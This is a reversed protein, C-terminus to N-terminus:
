RRMQAADVASQMNDKRVPVLNSKHTTVIGAIETGTYSPAHRRTGSAPINNSTHTHMDTKYSPIEHISKRLPDDKYGVKALLKEMQQEARLLSKTKPKNRRKM